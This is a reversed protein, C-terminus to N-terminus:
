PCALHGSLVSSNTAGDTAPLAQFTIAIGAGDQAVHVTGSSAWWLATPSTLEVIAHEAPVNNAQTDSTVALVTYDGPAPPGGVPFWLRATSPSISCIAPSAANEVITFSNTIDPDDNCDAPDGTSCLADGVQWTQVPLAASGDGTDGAEGETADDASAEPAGEAGDTGLAGDAAAGDPTADAADDASTADTADSRADSTADPMAPVDPRADITAIADGADPTPPRADRAADASPSGDRADPSLARDLRADAVEQAADAPRNADAAASADDRGNSSVDGGEKPAIGMFKADQGADATEGPEGGIDDTGSCAAVLLCFSMLTWAWARAGGRM